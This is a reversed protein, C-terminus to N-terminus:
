REKRIELNREKGKGKLMKIIIYRPPLIQTKRAQLGKFKRYRSIWIERRGIHPFNEVIIEAGKETEEEEPVKM